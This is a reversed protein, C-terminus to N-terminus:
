EEGRLRGLLPNKPDVISLQNVLADFHQKELFLKSKWFVGELMNIRRQHSASDLLYQNRILSIQDEETDPDAGHNDIAQVLTKVSAELINHALEIQKIEKRSRTIRKAFTELRESLIEKEKDM